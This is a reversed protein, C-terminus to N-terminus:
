RALYNKCGQVIANAIGDQHTPNNMAMAEDYTTVFGVEFLISPFDQQTTVAFYDYKAGRNRNVGDGYVSNKYYGAVSSSVAAALPQSFPTFYWAEVGKATSSGTVANSHVAIYIDPNYQRAIDSRQYTDVYESETHYRVVTAGEATFKAELLKSIALNVSQETIHGIAGYDFGSPKVGHGPDVVIVAGSLSNRCGNFKFTLNGDSDYYPTVGAFMGTRSFNLTLTQKNVNNVVAEGWSASSFISGSPFAFDGGASNSYDFTITLSTSNFASVAYSGGGAYSVGGFSMSFPTKVTQKVKVLTDTGDMSASVAAINNSGLPANALVQVDSCKIRKGSLTLYYSVSSFTVKKTCYDLVGAPLRAQNPTPITDATRYDYVMTNDNKTMLLSGDANNLVEPLANVIITAGSMTKNFQKGSKGTYTGYVVINGLNQAKNIIGKPTTYIGTYRVYNSNEYGEPTGDEAKMPVKKGNISASVTSGKYAIASITINTKEEVEMQGIAPTVTKLVEVKRTIKYTITKGKNEITFVNLGVDLDEEYYFRGADNLEIKKGNFKVQFNADFSGSFKVTPEETTFERKDPSIINLENDITSMNLTNNYYKVLVDTSEAANANLSQYSKFASGKYGAVVEASRLQQVIQDPSGWGAANTCIKENDHMVYLPINAQVAHKAWWNVLENFPLSKDSISGEAELMIFDAYGKQVYGLTDAYGNILAQFGDATNSGQTNSSANAWVDNLYIGVPVTNDTKRIADSVLSFVYAGNDLLWNDFGIGSGNQMYDDFTTRNKSSYYGDLIIGDVDYKFTFIHAQLALYDIREQLGENVFQGLIYNIDFTLYVFLGKDKAAQIVLEIPAKDVAANIDTSYFAKGNSSTNIIVSNMGKAQVDAMISAVEATIEDTTEGDKKAFDVGPTLTVARLKDPMTFESHYEPEVFDELEQQSDNQTEDTKKTETQAVTTGDEAYVSFTDFIISNDAVIPVFIVITLILSFIRFLRKM